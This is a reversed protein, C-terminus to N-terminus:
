WKGGKHCPCMAPEYQAQHGSPGGPGRRGLQKPGWHTSTGQSQEEGPASRQIDAQHVEHPQQWHKEGVEKRSTMRSPLTDAVWYQGLISGQHVGSTVLRWSSNTDSIMVRQAPWAAPKWDVENDAWGSNLLSTIAESFDLYIIEVLHSGLCNNWWLLNNPQDLMVEKQSDMSFAKHIRTATPCSTWGATAHLAATDTSLM